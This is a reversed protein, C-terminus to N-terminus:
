IPLPGLHLRRWIREFPFVWITQLGDEESGAFLFGMAILRGIGKKVVLAGSHGPVAIGSVVRLSWFDAVPCIQDNVVVDGSKMWTPVRCEVIAGPVAYFFRDTDNVKFNAFATISSSQGTVRWPEVQIGPLLTIVAGDATIENGSFSTFALLHGATVNGQVTQWLIPSEDETWVNVAVHACTLAFNRGGAPFTLGCIGADNNAGVIGHGSRMGLFRSPGSEVVDTVLMGDCSELQRPIEKEAPLDMKRDVQVVIGIDETPEGGTFKRGIGVANVNPLGRLM